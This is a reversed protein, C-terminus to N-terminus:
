VKEFKSTNEPPATQVKVATWNVAVVSHEQATTDSVPAAAM